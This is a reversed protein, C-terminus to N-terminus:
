RTAGLAARCGADFERIRQTTLSPDAGLGRDMVPGLHTAFLWLQCDAPWGSIRASTQEVDAHAGGFAVHVVPDYHQWGLAACAGALLLVALFLRLDRVATGWRASGACRCSPRARQRATAAM